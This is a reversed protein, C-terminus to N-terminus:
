QVAPLDEPEVSDDGRGGAAAGAGEVELLDEVSAYVAQEEQTHKEQGVGGPM